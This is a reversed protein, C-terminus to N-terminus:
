CYLFAFTTQPEKYGGQAFNLITVRQYGRPGVVPLLASKLVQRSGPRGLQQAVSGGFIGVVFEDVGRHHPFDVAENFGFNNRKSFRPDSTFGFYPHLRRSSNLGQAKLVPDNTTALQTPLFRAVEDRVLRATRYTEGHVLFAFAIAGLEAFLALFIANVAAIGLVRGPRKM